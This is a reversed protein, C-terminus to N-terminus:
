LDAKLARELRRDPVLWILAVLTYICGAIWPRYFSVDFGLVYLVSSFKDAAIAQTPKSTRGHAKIILTQLIVYAIACQPPRRRAISKILRGANPTIKLM